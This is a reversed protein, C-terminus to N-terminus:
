RAEGATVGDPIRGVGAAERVEQEDSTLVRTLFQTLHEFSDACFLVPQYDDVRYEQHTMDALDLPRIDADHFQGLEGCSSLMSAGLVRIDTGERVLGHEMTFWFVMSVINVVERSQFRSVAQGFLQYLSALRSSALASGHGIIEHIMDPEPSFMPMSGHRIYQTAQFRPEALSKYFDRADVLGAAPSFRFGTLRRLRLSVENLQPLRQTPLELLNAGRLFERCAHRQHQDALEPCILRWLEHEERTYEVDSIPMGPLYGLAIRAINSRHEQYDPDDFGPHGKAFLVSVNEGDADIVPSYLTPEQPM